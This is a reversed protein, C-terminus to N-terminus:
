STFDYINAETLIKEDIMQNTITSDPTRTIILIMKKEKKMTIAMKNM